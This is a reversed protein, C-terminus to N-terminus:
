PTSRPISESGMAVLRRRARHVRVKAAAVSIGAEAAIEEYSLEGAARLLLANREDDPLKRIARMTSALRQKHRAEAEPGAGPDPRADDLEVHRIRRRTEDIWLNRAIAFLYAKLSGARAGDAGTFARAFTEATLEEALHPDRCLHWAFRQVHPAYEAYFESFNALM